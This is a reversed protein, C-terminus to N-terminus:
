RSEELIFSFGYNPIPLPELPPINQEPDGNKLIARIKELFAIIEGEFVFSDIDSADSVHSGDSADSMHIGGCADSVSRGDRGAFCSLEIM